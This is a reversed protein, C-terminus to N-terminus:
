IALVSTAGSISVVSVHYDVWAQKYQEFFKSMCHQISIGASNKVTSMDATYNGRCPLFIRASCTFNQPEVASHCTSLFSLVPMGQLSRPFFVLQSRLWCYHVLTYSRMLFTVLDLKLLSAGEKRSNNPLRLLSAVLLCDNTKSLSWLSREHLLKFDQLFDDSIEPVTIRQLTTRFIINQNNWMHEKQM